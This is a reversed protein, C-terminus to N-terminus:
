TGLEWWIDLHLAYQSDIQLGAILPEFLHAFVLVVFIKRIPFLKLDPLHLVYSDLLSVDPRLLFSPALVPQASRQRRLPAYPLFLAKVAGGISGKVM